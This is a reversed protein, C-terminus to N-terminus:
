CRELGWKLCKSIAGNRRVDSAGYQRDTVGEGRFEPAIYFEEIIGFEGGAYLAQSRGLCLVGAPQADSYALIPFYRGEGMMALCLETAGDEHMPLPAVAVEALLRSVLRVIIPAEDAAAAHDEM